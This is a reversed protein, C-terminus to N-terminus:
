PSLVFNFKMTITVQSDQAEKRSLKADIENYDLTATELDINDVYDKLYNFIRSYGHKDVLEPYTMKHPSSKTCIVFLFLCINSFLNQVFMALSRSKQQRLERFSM